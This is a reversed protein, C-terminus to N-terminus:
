LGIGIESFLKSPQCWGTKITFSLLDKKEYKMQWCQIATGATNKKIEGEM